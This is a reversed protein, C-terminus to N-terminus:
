FRLKLGLAMANSGGDEAVLGFANSRHHIRLILATRQHQPLSMALEIMWYVLWQSTDGDNAIEVLSKETTYSPGLGFALSTDVYKDWFFPEWRGTALANFEWYDQAVFHNVVQGEVEFTVKRGIGGIRRALTVAALYFNEFDVNAPVLLEDWDNTTMIGGYLNLSYPRDIGQNPDNTLGLLLIM